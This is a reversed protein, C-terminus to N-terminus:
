KFCGKNHITHEISPKTNCLNYTPVETMKYLKLIYIRNVLKPLSIFDDFKLLLKYMKLLVKPNCLNPFETVLNLIELNLQNFNFRGEIISKLQQFNCFTM